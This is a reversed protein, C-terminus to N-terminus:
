VEAGSPPTPGNERSKEARAVFHVCGFDPGTFFGWGEDNEILAGDLPLPAPRGYGRAVAPSGCEGYGIQAEYGTEAATWHQCNKCLQAIRVQM